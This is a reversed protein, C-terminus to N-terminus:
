NKKMNLKEARTKATIILQDDECEVSAPTSSHIRASESKIFEMKEANKREEVKKEDSSFRDSAFKCMYVSIPSAIRNGKSYNTFHEHHM